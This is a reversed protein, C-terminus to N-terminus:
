DVVETTEFALGSFQQVFDSLPVSFRGEVRAYGSLLSPTGKPTFSDGHPNWLRIADTKADYGLVAYAHNPTIGPTTTKGTGCTILRKDTVAATLQKRLEILQAEREAATTAPDKAFRCSFRVMKHGTIFQLMTGASGGRALVDIPSGKRADEPKAQNLATGVAKEYLNIWVGDQDNSSTMALEADTPPAVNVVRKGFTVRYTGDPQAVFLDAVQKPNRDVMAGLPALCFCNGLKGQHVTDLRPLKSAFLDRNAAKNIRELGESYMSGLNPRDAAAPAAVLTGLNTVTLDPLKYRSSRVARKLAAIAAGAKGVNRPDAVAADIEEKSLKGNGDLDWKKFSITAQELFEASSAPTEAFGQPTISFLAVAFLLAAIFRCRHM